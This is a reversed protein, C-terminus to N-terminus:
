LGRLVTEFAARGAELVLARQGGAGSVAMALWGMESRRRAALRALAWFDVPGRVASPLSRTDFFAM